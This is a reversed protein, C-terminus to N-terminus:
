MLHREKHEGFHAPKQTINFSKLIIYSCYTTQKKIILIFCISEMNGHTQETISWLPCEFTTLVDTVYEAIAKHAVKKSKFCKSMMQSTNSFLHMAVHFRNTLYNTPTEKFVICMCNKKKQLVGMYTQLLRIKAKCTSRAGCLEYIFNKLQPVLFM